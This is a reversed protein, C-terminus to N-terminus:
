ESKGGLGLFRAVEVQLLETDDVMSRALHTVEASGGAQLLADLAGTVRERTFDSVLKAAQGLRDEDLLISEEEELLAASLRPVELAEGM